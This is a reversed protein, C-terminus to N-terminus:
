RKEGSVEIGPESERLVATQNVTLVVQESRRKVRVIGELVTVRVARVVEKRPQTEGKGATSQYVLVDESQCTVSFRTGVVAVDGLPTKVVFQKGHEQKSVSAVVQGTNLSVTTSGAFSERFSVKTDKSLEVKSGDGLSASTPETATVTVGGPIAAGRPLVKGNELAVTGESVRASTKGGLHNFIWIAGFLVAVSAAIRLATKWRSPFPVIKPSSNEGDSGIEVFREISTVSPAPVGELLVQFAELCLPCRSLHEPM